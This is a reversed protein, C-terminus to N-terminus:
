QRLGTKETICKLLIRRDIGLDGMHSIEKLKGLWFKTHM